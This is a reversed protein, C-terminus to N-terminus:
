PEPQLTRPQDRPLVCGEIGAQRGPFAVIISRRRQGGTGLITAPDISWALGPLGGNWPDGMDSNIETVDSVTCAVNGSNGRRTRSASPKPEFSCCPVSSTVSASPRVTRNPRLPVPGAAAM